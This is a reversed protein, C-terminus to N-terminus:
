DEKKNELLEVKRFAEEFLTPGCKFSKHFSKIIWKKSAGIHM